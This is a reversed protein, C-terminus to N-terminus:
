LSNRFVPYPGLIYSGELLFHKAKVLHASRISVIIAMILRGPNERGAKKIGPEAPAM